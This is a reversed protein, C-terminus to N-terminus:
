GGLPEVAWFPTLLYDTGSLKWRVAYLSAWADTAFYGQEWEPGYEFDHSFYGKHAAGIGRRVLGTVVGEGEEPWVFVSKTLRETHQRVIPREWFTDGRERGVIHFPSSSFPSPDVEPRPLASLWPLRDNRSLGERPVWESDTKTDRDKWWWRVVAARHSWRVRCGLPLRDDGRLKSPPAFLALSM